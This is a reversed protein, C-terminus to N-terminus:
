STPQSHKHSFSNRCLDYFEEPDIGLEDLDWYDDSAEDDEDFYQDDEDEIPHSSTSLKEASGRSDMLVHYRGGFHAFTRWTATATRLGYAQM